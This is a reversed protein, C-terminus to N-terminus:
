DIERARKIAREQRTLPREILDGLKRYRKRSFNVSDRFEKSASTYTLYLIPRPERSSNGLGRHGLRYDFIVPSGAPALPTDLMEKSYHEYGLMHTGICFETPGNKMNLDVLPIFVNIAHCPRQYKTTLHPGDQHYIQTSSGPMSLFAGKHVITADDGLIKKVVPMWAAKELDTLFSFEDKEFAPLQMDYRGTGRQRFVDFGDSLESHLARAKITYTVKEYFDMIEEKCLDIQDKTLRWHQSPVFCYERKRKRSSSNSNNKVSKNMEDDESFFECSMSNENINEDSEQLCAEQETGMINERNTNSNQNSSDCNLDNTEGNQDGSNENVNVEERINDGENATQIDGDGGEIKGCNDNAIQDSCNKASKANKAGKANEKANQANIADEADLEEIRRKIWEEEQGVVWLGDRLFRHYGAELAQKRTPKVPRISAGRLGIGHLVKDIMKDRGDLLACHEMVKLRSRFMVADPSIWKREVIPRSHHDDNWAVTSLITHQRSTLDTAKEDMTMLSSAVSYEDKVSKLLGHNNDYVDIQELIHPLCALELKGRYWRFLPAASGSGNRRRSKTKDKDLKKHDKIHVM